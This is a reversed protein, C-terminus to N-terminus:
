PNEPPNHMVFDDFEVNVLAAQNPSLKYSVHQEGQPALTLVGGEFRILRVEKPKDM